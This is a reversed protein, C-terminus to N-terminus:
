SKSVSYSTGNITFTGRAETKDLWTIQPFTYPQYPQSGLAIKMALDDIKAIIQEVKIALDNLVMKEDLSGIKEFRALAEKIATIEEQVTPM